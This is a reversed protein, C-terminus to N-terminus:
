IGAGSADVPTCFAARKLVDWHGTEFANTLPLSLVPAFAAGDAFTRVRYCSFPDNPPGGNTAGLDRKAPTLLALLVLSLSFVSLRHLRAARLTPLAPARRSM